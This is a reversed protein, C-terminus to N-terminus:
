RETPAGAGTLEAGGAGLETMLGHAWVCSAALLVPAVAVFRLMAGIRCRALVYSAVWLLVLPPMLAAAPPFRELLRIMGPSAARRYRGAARGLAHQYGLVRRPGTKNRHVV